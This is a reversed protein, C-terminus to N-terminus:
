PMELVLVTSIHLAATDCGLRFPLRGACVQLLLSFLPQFPVLFRVLSFSADNNTDVPAIRAATSCPM